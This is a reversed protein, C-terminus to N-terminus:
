SSSLKQGDASDTQTLLKTAPYDPVADKNAFLIVNRNEQFTTGTGSKLKLQMMFLQDIDGKDFSATHTQETTIDLDITTQSALNPSLDGLRTGLTMDQSAGDDDTCKIGVKFADSAGSWGFKIELTPVPMANTTTDFEVSGLGTSWDFQAKQQFLQTSYWPLSMRGYYTVLLTVTDGDSVDFATCSLAGTSANITVDETHSGNVLIRGVVEDTLDEFKAHNTIKSSSDFAVSGETITFKVDFEPIYEPWEAEITM